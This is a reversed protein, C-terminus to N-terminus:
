RVSARDAVRETLRPSPTSLGQGARVTRELQWAPDLEVFPAGPEPRLTQRGVGAVSSRGRARDQVAISV